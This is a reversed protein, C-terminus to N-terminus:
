RTASQLAEVALQPDPVTVTVRRGSALHLRLARTAFSATM